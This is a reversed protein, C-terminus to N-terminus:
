IIHINEEWDLVSGFASMNKYYGQAEVFLYQKRNFNQLIRRKTNINGSQLYEGLYQVAIEKFNM